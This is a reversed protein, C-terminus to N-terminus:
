QRGWPERPDKRGSFVVGPAEQPPNIWLYRHDPTTKRASVGEGIALIKRQFVRVEPGNKRQFVRVSMYYLVLLLLVLLICPSDTSLGESFLVLGM